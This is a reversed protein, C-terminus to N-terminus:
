NMKSMKFTKPVMKKILMCTVRLNNNNKIMKLISKCHLYTGKWRSNSGTLTCNLIMQGKQRSFLVMKALKKRDSSAWNQIKTLSQRLINHNRHNIAREM